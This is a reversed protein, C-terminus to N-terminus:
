SQVTEPLLKALNESNLYVHATASKGCFVGARVIAFGEPLMKLTINGVHDTEIIGNDKNALGYRAVDFYPHTSTPMPKRQMTSLEVIAYEDRSGGDWYSNINMSGPWVSLFANHKKYSPFAALIVQKVEPASKLEIRNM